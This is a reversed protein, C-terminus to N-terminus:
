LPDHYLAIRALSMALELTPIGLATFQQPLMRASAAAHDTDGCVRGFDHFLVAALLLYTELRSLRLTTAPSDAAAGLLSDLHHEINAFHPLSNYSGESPIVSPLWEKQAIEWSRLLAAYLEPSDVQLCTRLSPM